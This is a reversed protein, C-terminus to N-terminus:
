ITLRSKVDARVVIRHSSCGCLIQTAGRPEICEVISDKTRFSGLSLRNLAGWIRVHQDEAGTAVLGSRPIECMATVSGKHNRLIAASNHCKKGYDWVAVSRDKSGSWLSNESTCLCTVTNNHAGDFTKAHTVINNAKSRKMFAAPVKRDTNSQSKGTSSGSCNESQGKEKVGSREGEPSPEKKERSSSPSHLFAIVKRMDASASIEHGKRACDEAGSEREEHATRGMKKAGGRPQSTGKSAGKGLILPKGQDTNQPKKSTKSSSDNRRHMPQGLSDKYSISKQSAGSMHVPMKKSSSEYPIEVLNSSERRRAKGTSREVRECARLVRRPRRGRRGRM